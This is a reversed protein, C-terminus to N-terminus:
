VGLCLQIIVATSMSRRITGGGMPWANLYLDVVTAVGIQVVVSPVGVEMM